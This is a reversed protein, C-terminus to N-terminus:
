AGLIAPDAWARADCDGILEGPVPGACTPCPYFRVPLPTARGARLGRGCVDDLARGGRSWGVGVECSQTDGLM